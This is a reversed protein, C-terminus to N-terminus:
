NNEFRLYKSIEKDADLFLSSFDKKRRDLADDNRKKDLLVQAVAYRYRKGNFTHNDKLLDYDVNIYVNLFKEKNGRKIITINCMGSNSDIIDIAVSGQYTTIIPVSSIIKQHDQEYHIKGNEENKKVIMTKNVVCILKKVEDVNCAKYKYAVFGYLYPILHHINLDNYNIKINYSGNKNMLHDLQALLKYTFKQNVTTNKKFPVDYQELYIKNLCNLAQLKVFCIYDTDKNIVKGSYLYEYDGQFKVAEYRYYNDYDFILEVEDKFYKLINDNTLICYLSVSAIYYMNKDAYNQASQYKENVFNQFDTADYAKKRQKLICEEIYENILTAIGLNYSTGNIEKSVGVNGLKAIFPNVMGLHNNFNNNCFNILSLADEKSYVEVIFNDSRNFMSIKSSFSIRNSLLHKYIYPITTLIKSGIVPIYINISEMVGPINDENFFVNILHYGGNIANLFKINVERNRKIFYDEYKKISKLVSSVIKNVVDTNDVGPNDVGLTCLKDIIEAKTPPELVSNSNVSDCFLKLIRNINDM